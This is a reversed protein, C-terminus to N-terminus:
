HLSCRQNRIMQVRSHCKGMARQEWRKPLFCTNSTQQEIPISLLLCSNLDPRTIGCCIWSSDAASLSRHM